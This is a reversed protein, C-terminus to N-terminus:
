HISTNICTVVMPYIIIHAAHMSSCPLAHRDYAPSRVICFVHIYLTIRLLSSALTPSAICCVIDGHLLTCIITLTACQVGYLFSAVNSYKKNM